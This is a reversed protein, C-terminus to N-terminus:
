EFLRGLDALRRSTVAGAGVVGPIPVALQAGVFMEEMQFDYIRHSKHPCMSNLPVRSKGLPRTWINVGIEPSVVHPVQVKAIPEFRLCREKAGLNAREVCEVLGEAALLAFLGRLRRRSMSLVSFHAALGSLVEEQLWPLVEELRRRLQPSADLAVVASGRLRLTAQMNIPPEPRNPTEPEVDGCNRLFVYQNGLAQEGAIHQGAGLAALGERHGVLEFGLAEIAATGRRVVSVIDHRDYWREPPPPWDWPLGKASICLRDGVDEAGGRLRCHLQWGGMRWSYNTIILEFSVLHDDTGLPLMWVWPEPCAGNLLDVWDQELNDTGATPSQTVSDPPTLRASAGALKKLLTTDFNLGEREQDMAVDAM